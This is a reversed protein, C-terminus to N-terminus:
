LMRLVKRIFWELGFLFVLLIFIWHNDWLAEEKILNPKEEKKPTLEELEKELEHPRVYKGMTSKALKELDVKNLEIKDKEAKPENVQFFVSIEEGEPSDFWVKYNGTKKARLAGEYRGEQNKHGKLTKSGEEKDPDVFSVEWNEPYKGQQQPDQVRLLVKVMEGVTYQSDDVRLYYKRSVGTLAGMSVNRIVQGWFRYFYRDGYLYRWRWSSDLATFFTKGKGFFQTAM